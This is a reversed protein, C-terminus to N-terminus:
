QSAKPPSAQTRTRGESVADSPPLDRLSGSNADVSRLHEHLIRRVEEITAPMNQCSHEGRVIFESEVHDLHASAYTVLGDRGVQYDGDGRVPIISHAKVEPSVPIDALALLVPNKPSMSDLSNPVRGGLFAEATSKESFSLAERAQAAVTAPLTVLRTALRRAFSSALYSGRHPTSIFIVRRVFPLPEVIVLRRLAARRAEELEVDELPTQSIERWLADGTRTATLKTLLGGQSHGIVVMQRLDADQGAPDVEKVAAMLSDRLDAASVVLPNGSGYMFNWVQFRRRLVPDATLANNFEAWTIPSSFTGHVLVIPIRGRRFSHQPIVRNVKAHDPTRFGMKGLNWASSQNLSYAVHTTLDNGLPVRLDGIAVSTDEYASYLELSGSSTGAELNTLSGEVRLLVTSPSSRNVGLRSDLPRVGVLPAGVGPERNRVSLGRVRFQDASLLKEFGALRAVIDTQGLRVDIEGVPLQRRGSELRVVGNTGRREALALGLGYNYYDCALRFRRDFVNQLGQGGEGFLFLWAYVASGLYYDRPDRPERAKASRGIHDGAAYSLETLAFLLDREGTAVAVQHLRRVAEDPRRSAIRDLDFRHLLAVTDAGLKGTRLTSEEVQAYSQRTSVKVAGIPYVCGAVLLGLSVTLLGQRWLCRSPIAESLGHATPETPRHALGGIGPHRTRLTVGAGQPDLNDHNSKM